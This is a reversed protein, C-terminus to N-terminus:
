SIAAYPVAAASAPWNSRRSSCFINCKLRSSSRRASAMSVWSALRSTFGSANAAHCAGASASAASRSPRDNALLLCTDIEQPPREGIAGICASRLDYRPAAFSCTPAVFSCFQKSLLTRGPELIHCQALAVRCGELASPKSARHTAAKGFAFPLHRCHRGATGGAFGLVVQGRMGSPKELGRFTLRKRSILPVAGYASGRVV